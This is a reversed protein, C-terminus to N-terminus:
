RRSSSDDGEILLMENNGPIILSVLHKVILHEVLYGRGLYCTRPRM